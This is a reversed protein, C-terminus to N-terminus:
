ARSAYRQELEFYGPLGLIESREELSIMRSPYFETVEGDRLLAQLMEQMAKIATKQLSGSFSVFRFGYKGLDNVSVLPTKGGEVLNVMLPVGLRGLEAGVQELEERTHPAEVFIMDAGADAYLRGRRIAEDIGDTARADTRAILVLDPDTRADRAARIKQVMDEAPIIQKGAFHGCRKPAVQDEMFLGAVGANEFERITRGVNLPNGYGTDCDGVVPVDTAAVINRTQALVEPMTMLGVDPTGLVSASVGAGTVITAPFGALAVLRATLSDYVGPAVVPEEGALLSRLRLRKEHPQTM